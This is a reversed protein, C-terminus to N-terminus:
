IYYNISYSLIILSKLTVTLGFFLFYTLLNINISYPYIIFISFSLNSTKLLSSFSRMECDSLFLTTLCISKTLSLMTSSIVCPVTHAILYVRRFIGGHQIEIAMM